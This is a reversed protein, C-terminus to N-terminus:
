ATEGDKFHKACVEEFSKRWHEREPLERCARECLIQEEDSLCQCPGEYEYQCEVQYGVVPLTKWYTARWPQVESWRETGPVLWSGGLFKRSAFALGLLERDSSAMVKLKRGDAPYAFEWSVFKAWDIVTLSEWVEGGIPAMQYFLPHSDRPWDGERAFQEQLVLLSPEVVGDGIMCEIWGNRWLEFLRQTLMERDLGHDYANMTLDLNGLDLLYVQWDTLAVPDLLAYEAKGFGGPLSHQRDM